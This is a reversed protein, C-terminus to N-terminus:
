YETQHLLMDPKDFSTFTFSHFEISTLCEMRFTLHKKIKDKISLEHMKRVHLFYLRLLLRASLPIGEGRSKPKLPLDYPCQVLAHVLEIPTPLAEPPTPPYGSLLLIQTMRQLYICYLHAPGGGREKHLTFKQGVTYEYEYM